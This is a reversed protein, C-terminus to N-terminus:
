EGGGQEDGRKAESPDLRVNSCPEMLEKHYGWPPRFKEATAEYLHRMRVRRAQQEGATMRRTIALGFPLRVLVTEIAPDFQM